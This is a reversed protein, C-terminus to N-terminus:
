NRLNIKKINSFKSLFDINKEPIFDYKSLTLSEISIYNSLLSENQIVSLLKENSITLHRGENLFYIDYLSLMHSFNSQLIFKYISQIQLSRNIRIIQTIKKLYEKKM